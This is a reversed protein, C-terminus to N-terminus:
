PAVPKGEDATGLPMWDDHMKLMIQLGMSAGFNIPCSLPASKYSWNTPSRQKMAGRSTILARLPTTLKWPDDPTGSGYTITSM